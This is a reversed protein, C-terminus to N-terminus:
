PMGPHEGLRLSEKELARMIALTEHDRGARGVVQVGIPLGASGIEASRATNAVIDRTKTRGVEEDARVKTWPVVGAPLGLVNWLFTYAGLTGLNKTPGHPVAPLASAPLLIARRAPGRGPEAAGV